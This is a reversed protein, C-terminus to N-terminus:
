HNLEENLRCIGTQCVDFTRFTGEGYAHYFTIKLVLALDYVSPSNKTAPHWFLITYPTSIVSDKKQKLSTEFTLAKETSESWRVM